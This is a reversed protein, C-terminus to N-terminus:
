RSSSGQSTRAEALYTELAPLLLDRGERVALSRLHDVAKDDLELTERSGYWYEYPRNVEYQLLARFIRLSTLAGAFSKGGLWAKFDALCDAFLPKRKAGEADAADAADDLKM